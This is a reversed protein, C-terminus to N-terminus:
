LNFNIYIKLLQVDTFTYVQVGTRDALVSVATPTRTDPRLSSLALFDAESRSRQKLICCTTRLFAFRAIRLATRVARTWAVDGRSQM